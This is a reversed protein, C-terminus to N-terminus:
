SANSLKGVFADSAGHPVLTVGGFNVLGNMTGTFYSSGHQDSTVAYTATVTKGGQLNVWSFNHLQARISGSCCSLCCLLCVLVIRRVPVSHLMFSYEVIWNKDGLNRKQAARPVPSSDNRLMIRLSADPSYRM